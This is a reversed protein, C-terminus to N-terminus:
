TKKKENTEEGLYTNQTSIKTPPLIKITTHLQHAETKIANKIETDKRHLLEQGQEGFLDLGFNYKQILTICHHELFDHKQLVKQLFNDCYVSM